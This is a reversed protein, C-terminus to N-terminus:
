SDTLYEAIREKMKEYGSDDKIGPVQETMHWLSAIESVPAETQMLLSLHSFYRISPDLPFRAEATGYIKLASDYEGLETYLAAEDMYRAIVSGEDNTENLSILEDICSIAEHYSEYKFAEEARGKLILLNIMLRLADGEYSKLSSDGSVSSNRCLELVHSIIRFAHEYRVSKTDYTMYIKTICFANKIYRDLSEPYIDKENFAEFRELIEDISGTDKDSTMLESLEMYYACEPYDSVPVESLRSRAAEYDDLEYFCM